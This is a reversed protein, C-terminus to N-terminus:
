CCWCRHRCEGARGSTHVSILVTDGPDARHGRSWRPTGPRGRDGIQGRLRAGFGVPVM